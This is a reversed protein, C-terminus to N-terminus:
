KKIVKEGSFLSFIFNTFFNTKPKEEKTMHIDNDYGFDNIEFENIDTKINQNSENKNNIATKNQYTIMKENQIEKNEIEAYFSTKSSLIIFDKSLRIEEEENISHCIQFYYM